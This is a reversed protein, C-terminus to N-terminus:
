LICMYRHDASPAHYHTIPMHTLHKKYFFCCTACGSHLISGLTGKWGLDLPFVITEPSHPQTPCIHFFNHTSNALVTPFQMHPMHPSTRASSCIAETPSLLSGSFGSDSSYHALTSSFITQVSSPTTSTHSALEPLTELQCRCYEHISQHPHSLFTPAFFTKTRKGKPILSVSTRQSLFYCTLIHMYTHAHAHAHAHTHTPALSFLHCQYFIFM